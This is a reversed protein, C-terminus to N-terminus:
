LKAQNETIAIKLPKPEEKKVKPATVTFVGNTLDASLKTTDVNEGITFRKEFKTVTTAGDRTIKRGGSLHLVSGDNELQANIESAKVGPVDVSLTFKDNTENIEYGPSSHRLVGGDFTRDINRIVPMWEELPDRFFPSPAFLEDFGAFLPRTNFRSLAM